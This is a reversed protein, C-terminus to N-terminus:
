LVTAVHSSIGYRKIDAYLRIGFIGYLLYLEVTQVQWIDDTQYIHAVYCLLFLLFPIFEALHEAVSVVEILAPRYVSNVTVFTAPGCNYVCEIGM